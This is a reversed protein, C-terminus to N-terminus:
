GNGARAGIQHCLQECHKQHARAAPNMRAAARLTALALLAGHTAAHSRQSAQRRSASAARRATHASGTEFGVQASNTQESRISRRSTAFLRGRSDFRITGVQRSRTPKSKSYTTAAAHTARHALRLPAGDAQGVVRRHDASTCFLHHHGSGGLADDMPRFKLAADFNHQADRGATYGRMPVRM